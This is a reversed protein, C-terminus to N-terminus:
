MGSANEKANDINDQLPSHIKLCHESCHKVYALKRGASNVMYAYRVVEQALNDEICFAQKGEM